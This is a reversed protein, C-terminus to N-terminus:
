GFYVSSTSFMGGAWGAKGAVSIINIICGGPTERALMHQVAFKSLLYPATLNIAMVKDWLGPDLDGVPDFQDMIGANNVLVDLNQFERVIEDFLRKVDDASTIDAKIAKLTGKAGLESSTQVLREENIDCIVVKAGAELFKAAIAKGFGGAGGTVLCTKGAAPDSM